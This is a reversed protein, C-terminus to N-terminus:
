RGLQRISLAARHRLAHVPLKAKDLDALYGGEGLARRAPQPGLGKEVLMEGTVAIYQRDLSLSLAHGTTRRVASM